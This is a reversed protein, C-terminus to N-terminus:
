VNKNFEKIFDSWNSYLDPLTVDLGENKKSAMWQLFAMEKSQENAIIQDLFTFVTDITISSHNQIVTHPDYKTSALVTNSYLYNYANSAINTGEPGKSLLSTFYIYHAMSGGYISDPVLGKWSFLAGPKMIIDGGIFYAM